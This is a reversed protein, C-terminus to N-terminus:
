FWCKRLSFHMGGHSRFLVDLFIRRVLVKGLPSPRGVFSALSGLEEEIRLLQNYRAACDDAQSTKPLGTPHPLLYRDEFNVLFQLHPVECSARISM